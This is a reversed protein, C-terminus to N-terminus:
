RLARRTSGNPLVVDVLHLHKHTYKHVMNSQEVLRQDLTTSHPNSNTARPKPSYAKAVLKTATVTMRKRKKMTIYHYAM